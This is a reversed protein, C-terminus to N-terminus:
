GFVCFLDVLYVLLLLVMFSSKQSFTLAFVAVSYFPTAYLIFSVFFDPRIINRGAIHKIITGTANQVFHLMTNGAICPKVCEGLFVINSCGSFCLDSGAYHAFRTYWCLYLRVGPVVITPVNRPM